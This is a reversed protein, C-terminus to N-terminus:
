PVFRGMPNGADRARKQVKEMTLWAHYAGAGFARWRKREDETMCAWTLGQVGRNRCDTLYMTHALFDPITPLSM